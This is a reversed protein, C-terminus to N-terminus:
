REGEASKPIYWVSQPRKYIFNNTYRWKSQEQDVWEANSQFCRCFYWQQGSTQEGTQLAIHWFIEWFMYQHLIYSFPSTQSYPNYTYNTLLSKLFFQIFPMCTSGTYVTFLQYYFNFIYLKGKGHLHSWFRTVISEINFFFSYASIYM